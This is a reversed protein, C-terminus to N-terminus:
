KFNSEFPLKSWYLRYGNTALLSKIVPLCDIVAIKWSRSYILENLNLCLNIVINDNLEYSLICGEYLKLCMRAENIWM